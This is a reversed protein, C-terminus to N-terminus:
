RRPPAGVEDRIVIPRSCGGETYLVAAIDKAPPETSLPRPGASGRGDVRQPLITQCVPAAEAGRRSRVQPIDAVAAALSLALLIM